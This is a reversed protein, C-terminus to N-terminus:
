YIKIRKSNNEINKPIIIELVGDKFSATIDEVKINKPLYFSRKFFGYSREMRQYNEEEQTRCKTRIGNVQIFGDGLEINLNEKKVGSLEVQIVIKKPSEYMDAFPKFCYSDDDSKKNKDNIIFKLDNNKLKGFNM